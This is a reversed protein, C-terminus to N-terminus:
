KLGEFLETFRDAADPERREIDISYEGDALDVTVRSLQARFVDYHHGQPDLQQQAVVLDQERLRELRRYVTPPSADCVDALDEASMPETSTAALIERAYEDDLLEAVTEIGPEESM